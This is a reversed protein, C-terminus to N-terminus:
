KPGVYSVSSASPGTVSYEAAGTAGGAFPTGVTEQRDTTCGIDLRALPPQQDDRVEEDIMSNHHTVFRGRSALGPM